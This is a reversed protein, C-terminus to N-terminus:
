LSELLKFLTAFSVSIEFIEDVHSVLLVFLSGEKM